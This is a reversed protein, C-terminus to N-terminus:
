QMISGSYSYINIICYKFTTM